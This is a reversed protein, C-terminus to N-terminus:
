SWRPKRKDTFATLGEKALRQAIPARDAIERAMALAERAVVRALLGAREAERASLARGTLIVDMAKANGIARVLRQTGDAGPHDRRGDRAPRLQGDRVNLQRPRNTTVRALMGDREVLVAPEPVTDDPMERKETAM